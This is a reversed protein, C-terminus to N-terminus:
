SAGGSIVNAVATKMAALDIPSPLVDDARFDNGQDTSDANMIIVKIRATEARAKLLQTLERGNMKPMVSEALVVTPRMTMAVRLGELGDAATLIEYGEATLAHQTLARTKSDSHVVLVVAKAPLPMEVSHSFALKQELTKVRTTLERVEAKAAQKELLAEGLDAEHDTALHNVITQLKESWQKELSEREAKAKNLLDQLSEVRKTLSRVEARAAEKEVMAEGITQEHDSTIGAVISTIRRDFDGLAREHAARELEGRSRVDEIQRELKEVQQLLSAARAESKTLRATYEAVTADRSQIASTLAAIEARAAPMLDAEISERQAKELDAKARAENLSKTLGRIEARAAEKDVTIEGLREEYDNTLGEVISAIKRDFDAEARERQSREIELKTRAEDLAKETEDLKTELKAVAATNQPQSRAAELEKTLRDVKGSLDRMEARAAEKEVTIEGLSEEYDRTLGDAISAIKRDFDSEARQRQSREIELKMRTDDLSKEAATLRSTLDANEKQAKDREATAQTRQTHEFEAEARADTLETRLRSITKELAVIRELKATLVHVKGAAAEREEGAATLAADLNRARLGTTELERELEVIRAAATDREKELSPIRTFADELSKKAQSLPEQYHLALDAARKEAADARAKEEDVKRWAVELEQAARSTGTDLQAQLAAARKAQEIADTRASDLDHQLGAIRAKAAAANEARLRAEKDAEARAEDMRRGADALQERLDEIEIRAEELEALDVSPRIEVVKPPSTELLPPPPTSALSVRRREIPVRALRTVVAAGVAVAFPLAASWTPGINIPSFMADYLIIAAVATTVGLLLSGLWAVIVIASLYVYIPEYRPELAAVTGNIGTALTLFAAARGARLAGAVWRRRGTQSKM